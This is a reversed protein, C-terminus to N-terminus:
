DNAIEEHIIELAQDMSTMASGQQINAGSQNLLELWMKIQQVDVKLEKERAREIDEYLYRTVQRIQHMADNSSLHFLHSIDEDCHPCRIEEVIGRLEHWRGDPDEWSMKKIVATEVHVGILEKSKRSLKDLTLGPRALYYAKLVDVHEPQVPTKAGRRHDTRVRKTM